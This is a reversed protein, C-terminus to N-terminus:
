AYLAEMYGNPTDSLGFDESYYRADALHYIGTGSRIERIVDEKTLAAFLTPFVNVSFQQALRLLEFENEPLYAACLDNILEKGEPGYPVIVGQTPTDIAKFAKGAAMFSQRLHLAPGQRHARAYDGVALSNLSLLNLLSDDRGLEKRSIAYSMEKARDFFYRQYYLAMAEPGIPNHGFQEPHAQYDNLVGLGIDRGKEIDPLSKLNEDEPRPNVV